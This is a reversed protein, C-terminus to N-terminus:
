GDQAGSWVGGDGGAGAGTGYTAPPPLGLVSREAEGLGALAAPWRSM